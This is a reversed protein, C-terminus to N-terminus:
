PTRWGGGLLVGPGSGVRISFWPGRTGVRISDPPAGEPLRFWEPPRSMGHAQLLAALGSGDRFPPADIWAGEGAPGTGGEGLAKAEAEAQAYCEMSLMEGTLRYHRLSESRLLRFGEGPPQGFCDRYAETGTLTKWRGRPNFYLFLAIGVALWALVPALIHAPRIGPRIGPRIVPRGPHAGNGPDGAM